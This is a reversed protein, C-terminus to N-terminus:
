PGPSRASSRRRPSRRSPPRSTSSRRTSTSSTPSSTRRRRPTTSPADIRGRGAHVGSPRSAGGSVDTARRATSRARPARRDANVTADTRREAPVTTPDTDAPARDTGAGTSSELEAAWEALLTDLADAAIPSPTRRPPCRHTQADVVAALATQCAAIAATPDASPPSRHASPSRRTSPPQPMPSRPTPRRTARRAGGAPRRGRGSRCRCRVERPRPPSRPAPSAWRHRARRSPSAVVSRRRRAGGVLRAPGARAGGAEARLERELEITDLTALQQGLAVVDGVAVEVTSVTGDAPFGVIAQDVPEITAVGTLAAQVTQTTPTPRATRRSITTPRGCSCCAPASSRPSRSARRDHARRCPRRPTAEPSHRDPLSSTATVHPGVRQPPRRHSHTPRRPHRSLCRLDVGIAIAMAVAAAAAPVSIQVPTDAWTPLGIGVGVGVAVGLVGGLLGLM